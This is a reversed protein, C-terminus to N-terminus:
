IDYHMLFRNLLPEVDKSNKIVIVEPNKFQKFLQVIRPRITKNFNWIFKYLEFDHRENCRDAVDSQHKESKRVARFVTKLLCQFRPIDMFVVLDAGAIRILM